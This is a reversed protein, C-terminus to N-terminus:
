TLSAGGEARFVARAMNRRLTGGLAISVRVVPRRERWLSDIMPHDAAACSDIWCTEADDLAALNERQLLVGPSFRAYREDFATKYSWAGPPTRLTALMAIPADDLRLALRELAGADAAGRLTKEFLTRTRPDCALASGERGKWGAAELDLFESTWQDLDTADRQRRFQLRGEECLRRHQRRLEKRKKTSLAAKLYRDPDLDSRLMAREERQVVAAPRRQASLVAVLAEWAPTDTPLGRLHLFLSGGRQADCWDLLGRWFAAERGARLLPGGCFANHHTWGRLHPLPRGYYSLSREVPLLGDLRDAAGLHALAVSAPPALSELAPQLAWQAMFPNTHSADQGLERWANGRRRDQLFQTWPTARFDVGAEAM